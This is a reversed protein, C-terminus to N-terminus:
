WGTGMLWGHQLYVMGVPCNRSSIQGTYALPGYLWGSVSGGSVCRLAVKAGCGLVTSKLAIVASAGGHSHKVTGCAWPVYDVAAGAPATGVAQPVVIAAMLALSVVM